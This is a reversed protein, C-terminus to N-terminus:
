SAKDYSCKSLWNIRVKNLGKRVFKISMSETGSPRGSLIWLCLVTIAYVAAGFIADSILRLIAWDISKLHLLEVSLYM